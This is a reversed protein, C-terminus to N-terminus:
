TTKKWKTYFLWNINRDTSLFFFLFPINEENKIKKKEKKKKEQFFNQKKIRCM